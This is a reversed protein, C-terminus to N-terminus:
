SHARSARSPPQRRRAWRAALPLTALIVLATLSLALGAKIGPPTYTWTLTGLGPPVDVAQVLGDVTVALSVAPGHRPQWSAAWGPIAAVSRVVRAGHPSFVTAAVPEAPAGSTDTLWAGGGPRGPLPQITLPGRAFRNAFVAFSGDMGAYKWRPPVLADQLQGDATFVHGDDSVITPPGLPSPARGSQGVVAISATPRPTKIELRTATAARAAFWTTQGGPATLGIRTGAAADRRADPDRVTVTVVQVPAGLFWTTRQGAAVGRSGTGAPGAAPQGAAQGNVATILYGSLTLLISTDLQDLTGNGVALPSLVNQGEGTALHAGTAAAYRGDALSSYGQVSPMQDPGTGNLDPPGLTSLEGPDLLDPDYIAFRGQYGLAAV